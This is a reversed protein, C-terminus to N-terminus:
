YIYKSFQFFQLMLSCKHDSLYEVINQFVWLGRDRSLLRFYGEEEVWSCSGFGVVSAQEGKRFM